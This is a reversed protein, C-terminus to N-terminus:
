SKKLLVNFWKENKRSVRIDETIFSEILNFCEKLSPLQIFKEYTLDTFYRKGRYGEKEGLKFSAYLIGNANLARHLKLFISDLSLFPIHILSACAWIGDYEKVCDFDEFLINKVKINCYESAIDCMSQSGDLADVRHGKDLFYKSDRGAGCGFDLIKSNPALLKLFRDQTESFQLKQTSAKYTEKNKKYYLLTKTDM